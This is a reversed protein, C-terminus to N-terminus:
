KPAPNRLRQIFWWHHGGIDEALYGRDAWYEEGHDTTTPEQVIRAGSERARNCHADVDDVYIMMNQTNAGGVAQPSKRFSDRPTADKKPGGVMILGDGFLLESHLISGDEGEIRLRVEFGFAKCLWDIAKGPDEYWVGSSIRPWGPPSPKM